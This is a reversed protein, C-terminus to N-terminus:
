RERSRGPLVLQAPLLAQDVPVPVVVENAEVGARAVLEGRRVGELGALNRHVHVALPTGIEDLLLSRVQLVAGRGERYGVVFLIEVAGAVDGAADDPDRLGRLVLILGPREDLVEAGVGPRERLERVSDLVHRRGEVRQLRGRQRRERAELREEVDESVLVRQRRRDRPDARRVLLGELAEDGLVEGPRLGVQLATELVGVFLDVRLQLLGLGSLSRSMLATLACGIRSSRVFAFRRAAQRRRPSTAANM